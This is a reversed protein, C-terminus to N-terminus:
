VPWYGTSLVLEAFRKYTEKNYHYAFDWMEPTRLEDWDVLNEEVSISFFLPDKEALKDLVNKISIGRERFKERSELKYPFHLFFIPLNGYQIRIKSFFSEYYTELKEIPLLGNPLFENRFKDTHALDTYSSLFSWRERKHEFRQDALEGMSDMFLAVPKEPKIWDYLIEEQLVCDIIETRQMHEVVKSTKAKIRSNQWCELLYDIRGKQINIVDFRSNLIHLVDAGLCAHKAIIPNRSKFKTRWYIGRVLHIAPLYKNKQYLSQFLSM